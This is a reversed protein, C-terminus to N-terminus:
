ALYALTELLAASFLGAASQTDASFIANEGTGTPLEFWAAFTFKKNNSVTKGTWTKSVEDNVGDFSIGTTTAM